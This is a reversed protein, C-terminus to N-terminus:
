RTSRDLQSGILGAVSATNVIASCAADIEGTGALGAAGTQNGLFV